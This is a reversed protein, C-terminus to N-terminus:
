QRRRDVGKNRFKEILNRSRGQNSGNNKKEWTTREKMIELKKRVKGL